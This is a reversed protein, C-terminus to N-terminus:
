NPMAKSLIFESGVGIGPSGDDSILRFSTINTITDNWTGSYARSFQGVETPPAALQFSGLCAYSRIRGTAADYLLEGIEYGNADPQAIASYAFTATTSQMTTRKSVQNTTVANPQMLLEDMTSAQFIRYLLKYYRDRDGNIGTSFTVSVVAAGTVLIREIIPNSGVGVTVYSM